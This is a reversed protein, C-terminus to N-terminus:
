LPQTNGVTGVGRIRVAVPAGPEGSVNTIQVGSVRGQLAQDPSAVPLRRIEEESVTGISETLLKRSKEGYGIVVVEELEAEDPALAVDVRSRGAIAVEQTIFG